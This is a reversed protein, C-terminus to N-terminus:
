IHTRIIAFNEVFAYAVLMTLMLGVALILVVNLTRPEITVTSVLRKQEWRLDLRAIALFNLLLAAAIGGLFVVPSVLNFIQQRQPGSILADIPAYFLTIGLENLVNALLFLAAPAALFLGLMAARYPSPKAALTISM